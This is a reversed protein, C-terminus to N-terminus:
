FAHWLVLVHFVGVILNLAIGFHATMKLKDERTEGVIGLTLGAFCLMMAVLEVLGILVERGELNYASQYVAWLFIALSIGGLGISIIGYITETRNNVRFSTKKDM